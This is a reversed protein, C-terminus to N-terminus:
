VADGLQRTRDIGHEAATLRKESAVGLIRVKKAEM